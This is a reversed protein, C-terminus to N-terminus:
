VRKVGDSVKVRIPTLEIGFETKYAESVEGIYTDIYDKHILNITCGGFGGGMMRSGLVEEHSKSFDVLFDLEACSVEYMDKLGKHSEYLYQGFLQFLEDHLANAAMIVRGNEMAAYRARQYSKGPFKDKLADIVEVPTTALHDYQPHVAKIIEMATECEQRRVNYQSSALNHSKNTNLLVLEYPELDATIYEYELTDSNLKILKNKKGKVVAFQDMIGCKTGVYHHEADRSLTIIELDSLKLKFLENLGKAVGSELAASSSIGSGIPLHSEISCKFGGLKGPRLQQIFHVVGLIYNEWEVDSPKVDTLSFTFKKDVNKSYVECLDSDTKSFELNIKKDIAAPLVFGGNYDIHEGILNIRGPAAITVVETTSLTAM